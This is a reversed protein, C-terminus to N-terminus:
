ERGLDRHIISVSTQPVQRLRSAIEEAVAVSRHRGGTCGIAVTAYRKNERRYGSFVPELAELYRDIFTIAGEKSLVYESVDADLGSHKSLEPVWYPNPLFRVDAVHNADVPLGYKFGFSMVTLSLIEEVSENVASRTAQALQHSSFDSTDIILDAHKRVEQLLRREAQIGDTIRGTGQLPHSRRAHEFRRVLVDDSADLFLVRLNVGAARLATFSEQLDSFFATGRVDIVAALKPMMTTVKQLMESMPKLMQPPLNDVVYWGMDELAKSATSRGAGSMGTIVLMRPVIMDIEGTISPDVTM